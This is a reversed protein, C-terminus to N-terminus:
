RLRSYPSQFEGIIKGELMFSHNEIMLPAHQVFAGARSFLTLCDTCESFGWDIKEQILVRGGHQQILKGVEGASVDVARGHDNSFGGGAELWNSHHIFSAGQPSLVRLIEPVYAELIDMTAHVLSDFSFLFDVSGDDACSLSKGDNKFFSAKQLSGFRDKCANVCETSLDVGQFRDCAPLLFRTWRGFGPAIELISHAPLFPSIRPFLSGFWQARSGGWMLSWEEGAGSWDFNGDWFFFNHEVNDM